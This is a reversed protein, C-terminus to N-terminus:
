LWRRTTLRRRGSLHGVPGLSERWDTPVYVEHNGPGVTIRDPGGVGALWEAARRVEAPLSINVLDGTLAVHDPKQAKIDAVIGALAEPAHVHM